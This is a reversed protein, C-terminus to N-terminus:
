PSATSNTTQNGTVDVVPAPSGTGRPVYITNGKELAEIRREELFIPNERLAEGRIRIVDADAEAEIRKRRAEEREVAVENQKTEIRVRANEKETLEAQYDQPLTVERIQVAEITIPEDEAEADLSDRAAGALLERGRSTYIESTKISAAEDRLRSRVSPRMLRQEVQEENNWESVFEDSAGADIRYRVTVDIRHTTGNVSQVVVADRRNAEDGEGRTDAMTYTRPRTEVNQITVWPMVWHPGPEHVNGTVAGLEREVGMHGEPVQEYFLLGGIAALVVLAVLAVAVM